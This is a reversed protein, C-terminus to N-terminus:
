PAVMGNVGRDPEAIFTQGEPVRPRGTYTPGQDGPVRPDVVINLNPPAGAAARRMYGRQGSECDAEGRENVARGHYQAHLNVPDGMVQQTLPDVPEGNAPQTAGFQALQGPAQKVQIRQLTGTVEEEALHDSLVTWWYNWYNCVTVHPGAFRLTPDLTGTTARLGRLVLDTTPSAALVRLAELARGLRENFPPTDPLVRTGTALAVNLTPISRRVEAATARLDDSIAALDRLFPRQVPFSRLGAALTPPSESITDRLARPDRSLAEFVEAGRAFGNALPDRVPVTVRAANALERLFERLRTDPDALTRMVPDLDRVLPALAALSRNLEPGRSALGGGFTFLNRQIDARTRPDFMGFIDDLEPPVVGRSVRVVSGQPLTRDSRGRLLDVYKLGLASRPRIVLRSDDPIPGAGKDLKLTLQAGTRGGTMPVAKIESVQGIRVGGERVDNGVVLRAASPTEVKVEYTPVFPLGQNANYALFVAVAIVLVTVAGVLVPNAIVSRARRRSM